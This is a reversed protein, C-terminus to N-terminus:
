HLAHYRPCACMRAQKRAPLAGYVFAIDDVFGGALLTDAEDFVQL